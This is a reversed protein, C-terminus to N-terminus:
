KKGKKKPERLDDAMKLLILSEIGLLKALKALEDVRWTGPRACRAALTEFAMSMSGALKHKGAEASIEEFTTIIDSLVMKGVKEYVIKEM